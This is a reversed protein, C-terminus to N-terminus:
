YNFRLALRMTRNGNASTVIGFTSPNNVTTGPSSWVPSNTFNFAEARFQINMKEIPKFNKFLSFDLNHQGPQRVNPLFRGVSGFTYNPTQSFVSQVFYKNLRDGIIGTVQPNQGNDTPRIGPSNIGTTNDGNSIAIPIGKQFTAIGNMQWGGMIFDVAKPAANMFKRSRGLPVEWNASAVFRQPV